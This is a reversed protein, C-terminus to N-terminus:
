IYTDVQLFDLQLSLSTVNVLSLLFYQGLLWFYKYSKMLSVTCLKLKM